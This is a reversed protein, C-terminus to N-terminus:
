KVNYSVAFPSIAWGSSNAGFTIVASGTNVQTLNITGSSYISLIAGAYIQGPGASLGGYSANITFCLVSSTTPRFASPIVSGGIWYISTSNIWSFTSNFTITVLSGVRTCTITPQTVSTPTGSPTYLTVSPLTEELYYYLQGGTTGPTSSNPNSTNGTNLSGNISLNGSPFLTMPTTYTSGSTMQNWQYSYTPVSAYTNFFAVEASGGTKNWCVALGAQATSPYGQTNNIFYAYGGGHPVTFNGFGDDLITYTGQVSGSGNYNILLDGYGNRGLRLYSAGNNIQQIAYTTTAGGDSFLVQNANNSGGTNNCIINGQTTTISGATSLTGSGSLTAISTTGGYWAFNNTSIPVSAWLTGSNIGLAYDASSSTINSYLVLKTGLSRTTFSPAAYGGAGLYIMNSSPSGTAIQFASGASDSGGTGVNINGYQNVMFPNASARTGLFVRNTTNENRMVTDGSTTGTLYDNSASAVGLTMEGFTRGIIIGADSGTTGNLFSAITGASALNLSLQYGSILGFTVNSTTALNQNLGAVYSWQTPSISYGTVSALNALTTIAPQSASTVTASSGTLNGNFTTAYVNAWVAGSSGLNYTNSAGPAISGAITLGSAGLAAIANGAICQYLYSGDTYLGTNTYGTFSFGPSSASGVSARIGTSGTLIGATLAAFIPSSVTTLSQNLAGLYGWQLSGISTGSVTTLGSLTTINPQSSATVTAATTASGSLAGNFTTATVSSFTPMSTTTLAQNLGGLYGWQTSSIIVGGVSVLGALTTINPQSATAITGFLNTGYINAWYTTPGGINYTNNANPNIYGGIGIGASGCSANSPMLVRCDWTGTALLIVRIGGGPPVTAITTGTYSNVALGNGGTADNLIEYLTGASLTGVAPLVVTATGTGGSFIQIQSAGASLSITGSATNSDPNNVTGLAYVTKWPNGATGINSSGTPVLNGSLNLSAFTPSASTALSQNIPALYGWNASSLTVAGITYSSASIAGGLINTGYINAWYETNSGLSFTNTASPLFNRYGTISIGSIELGLAGGTALGIDNAGIAYMGSNNGVFRYAPAAASGNGTINAGSTVTTLAYGSPTTPGPQTTLNDYFTWSNNNSIDRFLGSYQATKGDASWEGFIGIDLTNSLNGDALFIQPDTTTLQTITNYSANGTVVLNGYLTTTNTATTDIDVLVSGAANKIQVLGINTGQVTLGSFSPTATTALNQNLDNVYPWVGGGIAQGQISTLGALTTINTQSPTLVQGVLNGTVSNFNVASTSALNQNINCIFGFTTPTITNAGSIINSTSALNLNGVVNASGATSTTCVLTDFDASSLRGGLGDPIASMSGLLVHNLSM